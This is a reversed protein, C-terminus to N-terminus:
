HPRVARVATRLPAPYGEVTKSPDEPDLFDSLSEFPAFETRRQEDTSLKIESFVEVERFGAKKLWSSLCKATPVFYVNRAKAYCGEPCLAISESGPISQSELIITGGPRLSNLINRLGDLPNRRHYVVGMCLVVDFFKPFIELHEIGLIEYQLGPAQAYRQLLEFSYYFAESPDFGVLCEPEEASARFMYYGNGCGIDAVRRGKLTPLKPKIRDWKFDSRWEADIDIGFISLPGKRWPRLLSVAKLLASQEQDSFVGSKGIVVEPGSCDCHVIRGRRLLEERTPLLALCERMSQWHKRGLSASALRRLDSLKAFDIQQQYPLLIDSQQNENMLPWFIGNSIRLTM